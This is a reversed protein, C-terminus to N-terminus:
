VGKNQTPPKFERGQSTTLARKEGPEATTQEVPKYARSQNSNEVYTEVDEFLHERGKYAVSTQSTDILTGAPVDHPVGNTWYCFSERARKITV